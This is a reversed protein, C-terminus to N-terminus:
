MSIKQSTHPLSQSIRALLGVFEVFLYIGLHNYQFVAKCPPVVQLHNPLAMLVVIRLLGDLQRLFSKVKLLYQVLVLLILSIISPSKFYITSPVMCNAHGFGIVQDKRGAAGINQCLSVCSCSDLEIALMFCLLNCLATTM